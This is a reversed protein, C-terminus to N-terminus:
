KENSYIQKKDTIFSDYAYENSNTLQISIITEVYCMKNQINKLWNLRM